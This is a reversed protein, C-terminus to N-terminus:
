GRYAERAYRVAHTGRVHYECETNSCWKAGAPNTMLRRKCWPCREDTITGDLVPAHDRKPKM